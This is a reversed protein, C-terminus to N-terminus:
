MCGEWEGSIRYFKIWIRSVSRWGHPPGSERGRFSGVPQSKLVPTTSVDYLDRGIHLQMMSMTKFASALFKNSIEALIELVTYQSASHM